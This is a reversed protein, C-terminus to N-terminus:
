HKHQKILNIVADNVFSLEDCNLISAYQTMRFVIPVTLPLENTVQSETTMTTTYFLKM